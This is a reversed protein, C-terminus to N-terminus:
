HLVTRRQSFTGNQVYGSKASRGTRTGFGAAELDDVIQEGLNNVDLFARNKGPADDLCCTLMWYGENRDHGQEFLAVALTRNHEYYALNLEMQMTSGNTTYSFTKKM